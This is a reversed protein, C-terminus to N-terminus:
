RAIGNQSCQRGLAFNHAPHDPDKEISRMVEAGGNVDCLSVVAWHKVWFLPDRAKTKLYDLREGEPMFRLRIIEATKLAQIDFRLVNDTAKAAKAAAQELIPIDEITGAMKLIAIADDRIINVIYNAYRERPVGRSMYGTSTLPHKKFWDADVGIGERAIKIDFPKGNIAQAKTLGVRVLLHDRHLASEVARLDEQEPSFALGVLAIFRVRASPDDKLKRSLTLARGKDISTVRLLASDRVDEDVDHEALNVLLDLYKEPHAERNVMEAIQYRVARSNSRLGAFILEERQSNSLEPLKSGVEQMQQESATEGMAMWELTKEVPGSAGWSLQAIMVFLATWLMSRTM